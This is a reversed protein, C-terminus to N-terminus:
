LSVEQIWSVIVQKTVPDITAVARLKRTRGFSSGTVNIEVGSGVALVSCAASTPPSAFDRCVSVSTPDAATPFNYGPIPGSDRTVRLLADDIGARALAYAELSLRAGYQTRGITTVVFAAGLGLEVIVSGILLVMLLGVAGNKMNLKENMMLNYGRVSDVLLKTIYYAM